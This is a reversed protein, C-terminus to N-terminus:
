LGCQNVHPTQMPGRRRRSRAPRRSTRPRSRWASARLCRSSSATACSAWSRARAAGSRASSPACTSAGAMRGACAAAALQAVPQAGPAQLSEHFLLCSLASMVRVGACRCPHMGCVHCFTLGVVSRAGYSTTMMAAPATAPGQLGPAGLLQQLAMTLCKPSWLTVTGASWACSTSRHVRGAEAGRRAQATGHLHALHPARRPAGAAAGCRAGRGGHGGLGAADPGGARTRGGAAQRRARRGTV